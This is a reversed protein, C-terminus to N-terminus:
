RFPDPRTLFRTVYDTVGEELSRFDHPFGAERLRSMRAQTFYQYRGKLDEPMDIYDIRANRDNARFTATILDAFSRAQGTGVNFLGSVSPTELLWEVVRVCDLVYVFDRLQGGDAYDPHYSKFLSVTEGAACRDQNKAVISMMDGKHFENPGFVNFFKLGAWQPPVARGLAVQRLAWVDFLKKSWGYLNLPRLAMVAALDNDDDFGLAGDGYTAASSAYIFPVGNGACWSWLDRSLTFNAQVVADADRATTASIAGMHVVARSRAGWQKLTEMLREPPVIDEVAHHALNRWKLNDDGLRDCVIVDGTGAECLSAVINSGIFGAGGTVLIM